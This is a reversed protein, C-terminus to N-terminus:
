EIVEDARVLISPPITLGLTKATQRNIAMEFKPPSLLGGELHATM